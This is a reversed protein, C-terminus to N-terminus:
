PEAPGAPADVGADAARAALERARRAQTAIAEVRGLADLADAKMAPTVAHHSFRAIEFLRTLSQVPAGARPARERVRDLYEYPTETPRAPVQLTELARRAAAYAARVAATPELQDLALPGTGADTAAADLDSWQHSPHARRRWIVAGGIVAVAGAAVLTTATWGRAGERTSPAAQPETKVEGGRPPPEIKEPKARAILMVVLLIALFMAIVAMPKWWWPPRDDEAAEVAMRKGRRLLAPAVLLVLLAALAGALVLILDNRLGEDVSVDQDVRPTSDGVRARAASWAALALLMVGFSILLV